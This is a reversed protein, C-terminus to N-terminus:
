KENGLIHKQHKAVIESYEDVDQPSGLIVPVRQHIKEPVVDLIDKTGTTAKGGAKQMIFAM